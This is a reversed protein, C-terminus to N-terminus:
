HGRELLNRLEDAAVHDIRLVSTASTSAAPAVVLALLGIVFAIVFCARATRVKGIEASPWCNVSARAPISAALGASTVVPHGGPVAADDNTRLRDPGGM